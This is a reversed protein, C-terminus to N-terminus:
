RRDLCIDRQCAKPPSSSNSNVRHFPNNPKQSEHTPSKTIRAELNPSPSAIPSPGRRASTRSCIVLVRVPIRVVIVLLSPSPYVRAGVRVLVLVIVRVPTLSNSLPTPTPTYPRHMTFEHRTLPVHSNIIKSIDTDM